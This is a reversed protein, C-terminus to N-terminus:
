ADGRPLADHDSDELRRHLYDTLSAFTCFVRQRDAHVDHVSGRVTDPAAGAERWLRVVFVRDVRRSAM